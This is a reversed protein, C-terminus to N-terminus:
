IQACKEKNWESLKIKRPIEVKQIKFIKLVNKNNGSMVKPSEALNVAVGKRNLKCRTVTKIIV